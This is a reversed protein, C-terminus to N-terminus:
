LKREGKGRSKEPFAGKYNKMTRIEEMGKDGNPPCKM